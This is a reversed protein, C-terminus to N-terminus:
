SPKDRKFPLAQLREADICAAGAMAGSTANVTAAIVGGAAESCEELTDFRQGTDAVMGRGAPAALLFIMLAFQTM